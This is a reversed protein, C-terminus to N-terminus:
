YLRKVQRMFQRITEKKSDATWDYPEVLEESAYKKAEEYTYFSEFKQLSEQFPIAEGKFLHNIFLIKDNITLIKNLHEIKSSALKDSLDLTSQFDFLESFDQQPLPEQVSVENEKEKESTQNGTDTSQGNVTRVSSPSTDESEPHPSIISGPQEYTVTAPTHEDSDVPTESPPITKINDPPSATETRKNSASVEEDVPTSRDPNNQQVAKEINPLPVQEIPKPAEAVYTHDRPMSPKQSPHNQGSNLVADYLHRIDELLIDRDLASLGDDHLHLITKIRELHYKAKKTQM